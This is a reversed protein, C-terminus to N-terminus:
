PHIWRFPILKEGAHPPNEDAIYNLKIFRANAKKRSKDKMMVDQLEVEDRATESDAACYISFLPESVM